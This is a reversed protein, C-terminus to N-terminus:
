TDEQQIRLIAQLRSGSPYTGTWGLAVDGTVTWTQNGLQHPAAYGAAETGSPVTMDDILWDVGGINLKVNQTAIQATRDASAYLEFLLKWRKGDNPIATGPTWVVSGTGVTLTLTGAPGSYALSFAVWSNNPWAYQATNSITGTNIGLGAEWDGTAGGNGARIHAVARTSYTAPLLCHLLAKGTECNMLAMGTECNLLGKSSM